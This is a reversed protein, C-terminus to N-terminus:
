SGRSTIPYEGRMGENPNPITEGKKPTVGPKIEIVVPPINVALGLPNDEAWV